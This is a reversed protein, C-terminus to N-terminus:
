KVLVMKRALVSNKTIIKYIYIGSAHNKADWQVTHTGADLRGNLLTTIEKGLVDYVVVKVQSARALTFEITTAANFPNPYNQQLVFDQPASEPSTSVGTVDKFRGVAFPGLKTIGARSVSYPQELFQSTYSGMGAETTDSLNFIFANNARDAKFAADELANAWGFQLTYDDGGPNNESITWKARVRGGFAAPDNDRVANVGLTDVVGSNTIWVPSYATTGVPFLVPSTGVSTMKLEGGEESTVVFASLTGESTSHATLTNAGLRLKGFFDLNEVARSAHLTLGRTNTIILNKPGGSAPFEVDTTTQASSGSYILSAETGYSLVNGGLAWAGSVMEVAGNVLVSKSLTVGADNNIILNHVTGPLLSGTVQAASGNFGYSAGDEFTKTGTNAISADLGNAHGTLLTAGAKLTFGGNGQLVSTGMDLTAGSDVEVPFGGGGFTVGDFTLTQSGGKNAFVFRAGTSNSNQTTANALSVNGYLNWVTTGSGGQSGRSVSFNGGTVDINGDLNITITTNANSTGNSTFQGDSQIIDGNITVTASAGASPACMQWRGSGTSQITVNGGIINGDWKMNYNGTQDPCNWLVNYFDQNGNSPATTKVSDILCTSNPRWIATPITGGNQAHEYVGDGVFSLTAQGDSTISGYNKVMGEVMLDTGIGDKVQLTIGRPIVLTGGAAVTLQDASDDANITVTHGDLITIAGDAPTPVNPAPHVWETGDNRAWTNVDNFNGSGYSRFEGTPRYYDTGSDFAEVEFYYEVGHNLSHMAVSDADYVMYNNYLKDPAIGYRVIYGDANQVPAWRIIADRGDAADRQITFDSVTLFTAQDSNGFIRLDRVAFNGQGPTFVNSLKLYRAAVPQALEVYDHPVDQMNQSKDILMEWSLGDMSKQITYQEYVVNDRGRVLDPNTNHEAFNVQIAQVTCPAGLDIMMWEDAGGTQAAWYTRADEDVAKDIGHDPLGSSAMVYKKHSLLMMGAFNDDVPNDKVGPFYQPYDGFATNCHINDDQDFGVPWLGLRREFMAKVSITMTGIHWYHGDKDKFTCGHGTGSIFGTPKFDAPSYNAYQFPGMAADAVYVGDAYTKFETGPAAYQLYYKNNHKIMWSGEIWPQEDLLNDDGRREWGHISAQNTVITTRASKEQFTMPDLEVVSTPANNSLGYYMYLRGDDDLFLAPDGYSGCPARKQWVGSKPDGTAYIQSSASPVYFLSDRMAVVAPAYTEIDIGTPIILTWNRLDPSTWYGGSRSAFLYYDDKFLVIVPDAAERADVADVMFRYNLNLPNCFTQPNQAPQALISASLLLIWLALFHYRKTTPM